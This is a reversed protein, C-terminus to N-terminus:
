AFDKYRKYSIKQSRSGNILQFFPLKARGGRALISQQRSCHLCNEKFFLSVRAM